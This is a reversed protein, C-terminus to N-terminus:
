RIAWLCLIPKPAVIKLNDDIINLEKLKQLSRVVSHYAGQIDGWLVLQTSVEPTVRYVINKKIGHARHRVLSDNLLEVFYSPTWDDEKKMGLMNKLSLWKRSFFGNKQSDYFTTFDPRVLNTNDMPPHEPSRQAYAVMQQLTRFGTKGEYSPLLVLILTCILLIAGVGIGSWLALVKFNFKLKKKKAM